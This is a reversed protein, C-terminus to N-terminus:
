HTRYYKQCVLGQRPFLTMWGSQYASLGAFQEDNEPHNMSTCEETHQIIRSKAM